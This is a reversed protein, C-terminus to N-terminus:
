FFSHNDFMIGRSNCSNSHTKEDKRQCCFTINRYKAHNKYKKLGRDERIMVLFIM